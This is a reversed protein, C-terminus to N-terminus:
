MYTGQLFEFRTKLAVKLVLIFVSFYLIPSNETGKGLYM